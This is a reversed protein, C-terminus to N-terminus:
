RQRVLRGPDSEDFLGSRGYARVLAQMDKPSATLLRRTDHENSVLRDIREHAITVTTREIADDLWDTDVLSLELTDGDLRVRMFSHVGVIHMQFWGHDLLGCQEENDGPALDLVLLDDIRALEGTFRAVRGDDTIEVIYHEPSSARAPTFTWTENNDAPDIWTGALAPEYVRVDETVFPHLTVYCGSTMAAAGALVLTMVTRKM